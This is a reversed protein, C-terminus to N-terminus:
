KSATPKDPTPAKAFLPVPPRKRLEEQWVTIVDERSPSRGAPARERAITQITDDVGDGDEDRFLPNYPSGLLGMVWIGASGGRISVDSSQSIGPLMPLGAKALRPGIFLDWVGRTTDLRITVPPLVALQAGRYLSTRIQIPLKKWEVHGGTLTDVMLQVSKGSPTEVFGLRAGGVQVISGVSPYVHLSVFRTSGSPGQFTHVWERQAQIALVRLGSVQLQSSGDSQRSVLPAETVVALTPNVGSPRPRFSPFAKSFSESGGVADAYCHCGLLLGLFLMRNAWFGNWGFRGRLEKIDRVLLQNHAISIWTRKM